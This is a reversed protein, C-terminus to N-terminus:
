LILDSLTPTETVASTLKLWQSIESRDVTEGGTETRTRKDRYM